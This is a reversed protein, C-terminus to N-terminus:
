NPTQENVFLGTTNACNTLIVVRDPNLGNFKAVGDMDVDFLTYGLVTGTPGTVSFLSTRDSNILNSYTIFRAYSNLPGVLNCNGAYLTRKGSLTRTAGSLIPPNDNPTARLYLAASTNTFDVITPVNNVFATSALTMVGLHNRHKVSVFYNDPMVGAFAIPSVGDSPEVIDGDRQVLAARTSLVISSNVKSRLQVFVWDVIANNGSVGLVGIGIMEGGGYLHNFVANYPPASYPETSPILSKIRLSDTMLGAITNFPGSLLVKAQLIVKQPKYPQQVGDTIKATGNANNRYMTTGISFTVMGGVGTATGGAANISCQAQLSRSFVILIFLFFKNM